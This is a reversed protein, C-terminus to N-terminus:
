DTISLIFVLFGLCRDLLDPRCLGEVSVHWVILSQRASLFLPISYPVSPFSLWSASSTICLSGLLPFASLKLNFSVQSVSSAGPYGERGTLALLHSLIPHLLDADLGPGTIFPVSLVRNLPLIIPM